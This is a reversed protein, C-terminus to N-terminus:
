LPVPYNHQRESTMWQVVLPLGDCVQSDIRPVLVHIHRVPWDSGLGSPLLSLQKRADARVDITKPPRGEVVDVDIRRGALPGRELIATITPGTERDSACVKPERILRPATPQCRQTGRRTLRDAQIDHIVRLIQDFAAPKFM